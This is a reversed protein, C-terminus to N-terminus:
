AANERVSNGASSKIQQVAEAQRNDCQLDGVAASVSVTNGDADVHPTRWSVPNM